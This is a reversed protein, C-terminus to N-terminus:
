EVSCDCDGIHTIGERTLQYIEGDRLPEGGEFPLTSFTNEYVDAYLEDNCKVLYVNGNEANHLWSSYKGDILSLAESITRVDSYNHESEIYDILIRMAHSQQINKPIGKLDSENIEDINTMEGCSAIIWKDSIFPNMYEPHFHKTKNECVGLYTNYKKRPFKFDKALAHTKYIDYADYSILLSSNNHKVKGNNIKELELFKQKSNSGYIANM